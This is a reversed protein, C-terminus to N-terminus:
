YHQARRLISCCCQSHVACRLDLPVIAGHGASGATGHAVSMLSSSMDNCRCCALARSCSRRAAATKALLVPLCRHTGGVWRAATVRCMSRVDQFQSPGSRMSGTRRCGQTVETLGRVQIPTFVRGWAIMKYQTLLSHEDRLAGRLREVAEISSEFRDPGAEDGDCVPMAGQASALEGDPKRLEETAVDALIMVPQLPLSQSM